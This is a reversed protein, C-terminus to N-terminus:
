RNNIEIEDIQREIDQIDEISQKNINVPNSEEHNKNKRRRKYIIIFDIITAFIALLIIWPIPLQYEKEKEHEPEKIYISIVATNSLNDNDVVTLYVIYNGPKTYSHIPNELFSINNDGFNWTYNIILGDPDYSGTSNFTINKNIFSTYPGNARAVPLQLPPELQKILIIYTDSSIAGIQDRVQLKVTYNGAKNYSHTVLVDEIWDIDFLGNNDFDWRYHTIIGDPDFSYNASFILTQNVYGLLSGTINAIPPQNLIPPIVEGSGGGGTYRTTFTWTNSRNEYQSDNAIAYWQYITAGELGSWIVSANSWDSTVNYDVGILSDDLVNYFYVDVFNSTEDYVIVKLTVTTEVDISGNPPDPNMPQSPPLNIPNFSTIIQDNATTTPIMILISILIILSLTFLPNKREERKKRKM